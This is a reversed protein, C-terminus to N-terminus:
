GRRRAINRGARRLFVGVEFIEGKSDHIKGALYGVTKDDPHSALYSTAKDTAEAFGGLSLESGKVDKGEPPAVPTDTDM